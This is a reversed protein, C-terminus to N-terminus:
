LQFPVEIALQDHLLQYLLWQTILILGLHAQLRDRGQTRLNGMLQWYRHSEHFAQSLGEAVTLLTMAGKAGSAPLTSSSLSDGGWDTLADLVTVIQGILHLETAHNTQFQLAATLWPLVTPDVIQWYSSQNELTASSLQIFHHEHALRLLSCCRAHTHQLLFIRHYLAATPCPLKSSSDSPEPNNPLFHLLYNFYNAIAEDSLDFQIYGQSTAQITLGQGIDISPSLDSSPKLLQCQYLLQTVLGAAIEFAPRTSNAALRHAIPSIYRIPYVSRTRKIPFLEDQAVFGQDQPSFKQDQALFNKDTFNKTTNITRQLLTRLLQQPSLHLTNCNFM